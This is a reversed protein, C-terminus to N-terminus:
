EAEVEVVPPPIQPGDYSVGSRTTIAKLEGKPNAVTNSPLTGSSSTSTQNSNVMKTLLDTINTMQNQMNQMVADNAKVYSEFDTKSVGSAQHAQYAPHQNVPPQYMPAQQQVQPRQIKVRTTAMGVTKTKTGFSESQQCPQLTANSFFGTTLNPKALPHLPRFGSYGQNFKAKRRSPSSYEQINDRYNNEVMTEEDYIPRIDADDAHADNGSTSSTDQEKSEAGISETNVLCMGSSKGTDIKGRNDSDTKDNLGLMCSKKAKDESIADLAKVEQVTCEQIQLKKDDLRKQITQAHIITKLM